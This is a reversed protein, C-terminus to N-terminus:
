DFSSDPLGAQRRWGAVLAGPLNTYVLEAGAFRELETTIAGVDVQEVLLALVTKEGTVALRFWEVWEDPIGHDIVKAAVAGSAAGIGLGAIWGVPGGVILGILGSWMAGGLAARGPTVDATEEVVTKDEKRTVFVADKLVLRQQSALRLSATFFEQARFRDPFSVGILYQEDGTPVPRDTVAPQDTM